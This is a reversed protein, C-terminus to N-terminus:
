NLGDQTFQYGDNVGRAAFYINASSYNDVLIGSTGGTVAASATPITPDSSLAVVCGTTTSTGMLTCDKSLGFFFFDVGSNIDPNFFETWGATCRDTVDTSLQLSATPTESMTDDLGSFGFTYQYPTTDPATGGAGGTGCVTVMGSTPDNYYDNSFAPEYLTVPPVTPGGTSGEGIEALSHRIMTATEVEVLAASTGDNATVVFTRGNTVDVIPPGVIGPTTDGTAGIALTAPAGTSTNIQYLNGNASGVMLFGLSADLVPSTVLTAGASVPWPSGSITPTGHFVGTIQYVSGNDAGVYVTDASYDIWPSSRTDNATPSFAVSAM